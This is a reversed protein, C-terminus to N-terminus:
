AEVLDVKGDRRRILVQVRDTGADRYVVYDRGDELTLMAEDVTMPKGNSNSAHVVQTPKDPKARKKAEAKKAAKKTVKPAAEEIAPELAEATGTKVKRTPTERKAERWKARAKQAQKEVNEVAEMLAAFQDYAAGEGVLTQDYFHVRVEAIQKHRQTSLAVQAARESKREILKGLNGFATALKREQAAALKEQKGTFTVKM